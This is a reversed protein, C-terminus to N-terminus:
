SARVRLEHSSVWVSHNKSCLLFDEIIGWSTIVFAATPATLVFAILDHFLSSDVSVLSTDAGRALMDIEPCPICAEQSFSEEKSTTCVRRGISNVDVCAKIRHNSNYDSGDFSRVGLIDVVVNALSSLHRKGPSSTSTDIVYDQEEDYAVAITSESIEITRNDTQLMKLMPLLLSALAQM